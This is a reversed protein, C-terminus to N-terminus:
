ELTPLKMQPLPTVRNWTHRYMPPPNTSWPCHRRRYPRSRPHPTHNIPECKRTTLLDQITTSKDKAKIAVVVPGIHTRLLSLCLTSRNKRQRMQTPIIILVLPLTHRHTGMSRSCHLRPQMQKNPKGTLNLQIRTTISPYFGLWATSIPM